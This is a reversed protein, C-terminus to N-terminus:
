PKLDLMAKGARLDAPVSAQLHAIRWDGDIKRYGVTWRLWLDIVQGAKTTGGNHNLSHSFAVEDGATISLERVEYPLPAEFAEFVEQWVKRFAEAGVIRLPPVIDFAVLDPAYASVVGELDHSRIAEVYGDILRRIAAENPNRDESMNPGTPSPAAM